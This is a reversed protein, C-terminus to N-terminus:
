ATRRADFAPRVTRLPRPSTIPRHTDPGTPAFGAAVTAHHQRAAALRRAAIESHDGAAIAAEAGVVAIGAAILPWEAEIAALEGATPGVLVDFDVVQRSM